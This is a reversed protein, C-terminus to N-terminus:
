ALFFSLLLFWLAFIYHDARNWLAVLVFFASYLCVTQIHRQHTTTLCISSYNTTCLKGLSATLAFGISHIGRELLYLAPSLINEAATVRLDTM